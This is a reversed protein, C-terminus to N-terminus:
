PLRFILCHDLIKKKVFIGVYLYIGPVADFSIAYVNQLFM